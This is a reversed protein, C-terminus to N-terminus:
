ERGRKERRQPEEEQEAQVFFLIFYGDLSYGISKMVKRQQEQTIKGRYVALSLANLNLVHHEPPVHVTVDMEYHARALAAILPDEKFRLVGHADMVLPHQDPDQLLWNYHDTITAWITRKIDETPLEAILPHDLPVEQM